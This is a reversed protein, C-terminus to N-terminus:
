RTEVVRAEGTYTSVRAEPAVTRRETTYAADFATSTNRFSVAHASSQQLQSPGHLVTTSTRATDFFKTSDKPDTSFRLANGAAVGSGLASFGTNFNQTVPQLYHNSGM